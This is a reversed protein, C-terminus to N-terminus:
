RLTHVLVLTMLVIWMLVVWVSAANLADAAVFVVGHCFHFFSLRPFRKLCPGLQLPQNFITRQRRIPTQHLLADFRVWLLHLVNISQGAPRDQVLQARYGVRWRFQQLQHRREERLGRPHLLIRVLRRRQVNPAVGALTGDLLHLRDELVHRLVVHQELIQKPASDQMAGAVAVSVDVDELHQNCLVWPNQQLLRVLVAVRRHRRQPLRIQLANRPDHGDRVNQVAPFHVRIQEIPEPLLHLKQSTLTVLQARSIRAIHGIGAGADTVSVRGVGVSVSFCSVIRRGPVAFFHRQVRSVQQM